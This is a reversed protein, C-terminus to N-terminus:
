GELPAVRMVKVMYLAALRIVIANVVLSHVGVVMEIHHGTQIRFVNRQGDCVAEGM